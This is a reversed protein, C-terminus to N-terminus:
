YPVERFGILTYYGNNTPSLAANRDYHFFANGGMSITSGLLSGYWNGNGTQSIPANPANMMATVNGNGAISIAGTGAYNITFDNPITDDTIGNGAISLPAAQGTGGINLTVAGPPTVTISGNGQMTLSNINYIGPALTLAGNETLNGYTGPIMCDGTNGNGGCAPINYTTNPPLPNPVPPTPFSYPVNLYTPSNPVCSPGPCNPGIDTGQSGISFPTACPGTGVPLVGVIGDINGNGLAVGGNAGIDGGTTSKTTAYTGGAATTYSDTTPNNGNFNIAPCAKSTAFLGYIFPPTPQLAVDTQVVKRAGTPSVGLATVLYTTNMPAGASNVMQSCNTDLTALPVEEAGDWCIITAATVGIGGNNVSYTSTTVSSGSGTLYSVSGNLKPAIRVWKYPLAASTTNFPLTSNYSAYWAAGTPLSTPDCRVDPAVVQATTFLSYGDHCLEDDPYSTSPATSSWPTVSNASNGPNLIYIVAKNATTPATTPLPTLATNISNPDAAMMRARAEEVGAKAGFYAMQEQRYNTNFSTETNAMFILASAIGMLLLLAFISFFLAIGRERKENINKM